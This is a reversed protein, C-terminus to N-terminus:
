NLFWNTKKLELRRSIIKLHWRKQMCQTGNILHATESYFANVYYDAQGLRQDIPYETIELPPACILRLSFVQFKRRSTWGWECFYKEKNTLRNRSKFIVTSQTEKQVYMCVDQRQTTLFSPFNPFGCTNFPCGRYCAQKSLVSPENWLLLRRSNCWKIHFGSVVSKM